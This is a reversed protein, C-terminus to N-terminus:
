VFAEYPFVLLSSGTRRQLQVSALVLSPATNGLNDVWEVRKAYSAALSPAVAVQDRANAAGGAVSRTLQIASSSLHNRSQQASLFVASM